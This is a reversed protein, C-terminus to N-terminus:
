KKKKACKKWLDWKNIIRTEAYETLEGNLYYRRGNEDDVPVVHAFKGVEVPTLLTHKRYGFDFEILEKEPEIYEAEMKVVMPNKQNIRPFKIGSEIKM